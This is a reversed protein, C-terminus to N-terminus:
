AEAHRGPHTLDASGEGLHRSEQSRLYEVVRPLGRPSITTVSYERTWRLGLTNGPLRTVAHSSGGKMMQALRGLDFRTPTQVIIHVHTSLIALAVVTAGERIATRRLFEDLFRHAPGVIM